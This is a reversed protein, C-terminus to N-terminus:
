PDDAGATPQVPFAILAWLAALLMLVAVVLPHLAPQYVALPGSLAAHHEWGSRTRIWDDAGPWAAGAQRPEDSRKWRRATRRMAPRQAPSPLQGSGVVAAREVAPSALVITLALLLALRSRQRRNRLSMGVPSICDGPWHASRDPPGCGFDQKERPKHPKAPGITGPPRRPTQAADRQCPTAALGCAASKAVATGLPLPPRTAPPPIQRLNESSAM